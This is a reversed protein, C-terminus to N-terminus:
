QHQGQHPRTERVYPSAVTGNRAGQIMACGGGGGGGGNGSDATDHLKAIAFDGGLFPDGPTPTSAVSTGLVFIGGGASALVKQPSLWGTDTTLYRFGSQQYGFTADSAAGNAQIRALVPLTPDLPFTAGPAARNYGLILIKDDAQLSMDVVSAVLVNAPYTVGGSVFATDLGGNPTLWVFAPMHILHPLADLMVILIRGDSRVLIKFPFDNVLSATQFILHGNTAFSTDLSGDENLRSVCLTRPSGLSQSETVGMAVLLKGGSWRTVGVPFSGPMFQSGCNLAALALQEFATDRQGDPRLAAVGFISPGALQPPMTLVALAGSPSIALSGENFPILTAGGSGYSADVSGDDNIRRSFVDKFSRVACFFLSGPGCDNGHLEIVTFRNAPAAAVLTADQNSKTGRRVSDFGNIGFTTDVRGASTLKALLPTIGQTGAALLSGDALQAVDRAVGGSPMPFSAIGGDGFSTDYDGPSAHAISVGTMLVLCLYLGSAARVTLPFCGRSVRPLRAPIM